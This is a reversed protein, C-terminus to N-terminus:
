GFVQNGVAVVRMSCLHCSGARSFLYREVPGIGSEIDNKDFGVDWLVGTIDGPQASGGSGYQIQDFREAKLQRIFVHFTGSEVVPISNIDILKWVKPSKFPMKAVGQPRQRAIALGRERRDLGLNPFNIEARVSCFVIGLGLILGAVTQDKAGLAFAQWQLQQFLVRIIDVVNRDLEVM